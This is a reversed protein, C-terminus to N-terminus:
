RGAIKLVLFYPTTEEFRTSPNLFPLNLTSVHFGEGSFVMRFRDKPLGSLGERSTLLYNSDAMTGPDTIRVFSHDSYFQLSREDDFRFIFVDEAPINNEKLYQSIRVGPQYELLKPYFGLDLFVNIFLITMVSLIILPPLGPWGKLFAIIFFALVLVAASLLWPNAPPFPFVLLLGLAITLLIAIVVQIRVLLRIWRDPGGEYLLRYLWTGTVIAALPFVVYLYHPLQFKSTALACYTVLFGGTTIWEQDPTIRFRSKALARVRDVLGPIFFLIWPLFGWLMNQFLFFFSDNEHWTSEGTIRGFSQTWYFFRLGSTGKRGYMMKEPHLDFQEYLGISMPILLVGIVLLMVLYEWRVLQSFKRQLLFHPVFAFVPVMLAIPGKTMMGGAISIASFLLHIWKGDLYWAALQWTGFIVWGMLM